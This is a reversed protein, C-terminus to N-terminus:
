DIGTATIGAQAAAALWVLATASVAAIAAYLWRRARRSM